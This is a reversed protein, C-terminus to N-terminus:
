PHSERATARSLQRLQQETRRRLETLEGAATRARQEELFRLRVLDRAAARHASAGCEREMAPRQEWEPLLGRRFAELKAREDAQVSASQRARQLARSLDQLANTCAVEAEPVEPWFAQAFIQAAFVLTLGGVLFGFVAYGLSKGRSARTRRPKDDPM